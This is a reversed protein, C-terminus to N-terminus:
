NRMEKRTMLEDSATFSPPPDQVCADYPSPWTPGYHPAHHHCGASAFSMLLLSCVALLHRVRRMGSGERGHHLPSNSPINCAPASPGRACEPLWKERQDAFSQTFKVSKAPQNPQDQQQSPVVASPRASCASSSPFASPTKRLSLSRTLHFFHNLPESGHQHYSEFLALQPLDRRGAEHSWATSVFRIATDQQSDNMPDHLANRHLLSTPRSQGAASFPSRKAGVHGVDLSPRIRTARLCPPGSPQGAAACLDRCTSGWHTSVLPRHSDVM